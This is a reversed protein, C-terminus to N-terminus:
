RRNWKKAYDLTVRYKPSDKETEDAYEILGWSGWKSWAGVSSFHCLTGGGIEEWARYYDEYIAGMRESRNAATLIKNLAEDDNAVWLGVLHQGAEYAM